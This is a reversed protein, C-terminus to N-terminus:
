RRQAAATIQAARWAAPTHGRARRFTRIFHTPDKYGVREAVIDIREDTHLLLREAEALRGEVIWAQVTKGTARRITTTLHSPSRHM